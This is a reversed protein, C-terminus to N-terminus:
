QDCKSVGNVSAACTNYTGKGSGDRDEECENQWQRCHISYLDNGLHGPLLVLGMNYQPLLLAHAEKYGSRLDTDQVYFAM